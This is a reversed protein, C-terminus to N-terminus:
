VSQLLKNIMNVAMMLKALDLYLSSEFKQLKSKFYASHEESRERGIYAKLHSRLSSYEAVSAEFDKLAERLLNFEECHSLTQSLHTLRANFLDATISM